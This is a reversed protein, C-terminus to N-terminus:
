NTNEHHDTDVVEDVPDTDDAVNDESHWVGPTADPLDVPETDPDASATSPGPSVNAGQEETESTESDFFGEEENLIRYREDDDMRSYFGMRDHPTRSWLLPLSSFFEALQATWTGALDRAREIGTNLGSDFSDPLSVSKVAFFKMLGVLLCGILVLFFFIGLISAHENNKSSDGSDNNNNNNNNDGKMYDEFEREKGPCPRLDDSALMQGGECTSRALKKYGTPIYWFIRDNECQANMDLPNTGPIPNCTMEKPDLEYGFDCEYDQRTCKCTKTIHKPKGIHGDTMFKKGVYCHSREKKREYLSEHGLMCKSQLQPHEPSWLQFDKPKCVNKFSPTFDLQVALSSDSSSVGQGMAFVLMKLSTTTPMTAINVIWVPEDFIKETTWTKGGDLSFTVDQTREVANALVIVSGSDLIAWFTPKEHALTWTIGADLTIFTKSSRFDTLSSGINGRGIFVGVAYPSSPQNRYNLRDIYGHLHLRCDEDNADCMGRPAPLSDWFSGDSHTIVSKVIKEAGHKANDEANAVINAVAVGEVSKLPDFDVFGTTYAPARNLDKLVVTFELGQLGSRLLYGSAQDIDEDPGQKSGVYLMIADEVSSITTIGMTLDMDIYEPFHVRNFTEGDLSSVLKADLKGDAVQVSIGLLYKGIETVRQLGQDLGNANQPDSRFLDHTFIYPGRSDDTNPASATLCYVFDESHRFPLDKGFGCESIKITALEWTDGFDMSKYLNSICDFQNDCQDYGHMILANPNTPHFKIARSNASNLTAPLRVHKFSVGRDSSLWVSREAVSTDTYVVLQEHDTFSRYVSRVKEGNNAIDQVFHWSAGQNSSIFLDGITTWALVTEDEKADASSPIYLYNRITGNLVTSQMNFPDKQKMHYDMPTHNDGMCDGRASLSAADCARTLLLANLVTSLVSVLPWM